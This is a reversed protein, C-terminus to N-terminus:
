REVGLIVFETQIPAIAILSRCIARARRPLIIHQVNLLNSGVSIRQRHKPRKRYPDVMIRKLNKSRAFQNNESFRHGGKSTQSKSCSVSKETARLAPVETGRRSAAISFARGRTWVLTTMDLEVRTNCWPTLRESRKGSAMVM